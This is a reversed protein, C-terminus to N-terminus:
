LRRDLMGLKENSNGFAGPSAEGREAYSFCILVDQRHGFSSIGV